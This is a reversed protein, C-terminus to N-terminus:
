AIEEAKGPGILTAPHPRSLRVSQALLARFGVAACLGLSEELRAGQHRAPASEHKHEGVANSNFVIHVVFVSLSGGRARSSAVVSSHSLM